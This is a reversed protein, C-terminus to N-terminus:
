RADGGEALLGVVAGPLDEGMAKAVLLPDVKLTTGLPREQEDVAVTKCGDPVEDTNAFYQKVDHLVFDTMHVVERKRIIGTDLLMNFATEQVVDLTVGDLDIEYTTETEALGNDACWRSLKERDNVVLDIRHIPKSVRVSYTGVKMNCLKLDFSKAGTDEYLALMEDDVKSRLSDPDKTSVIKGIVNQAAQALTLRERDTLQKSEM